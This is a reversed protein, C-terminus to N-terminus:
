LFSIKQPNFYVDIENTKLNSYNLCTKNQDKPSQDMLKSETVFRSTFGEDALTVLNIRFLTERHFSFPNEGAFVVIVIGSLVNFISV